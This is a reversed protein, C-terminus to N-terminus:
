AAAPEDNVNRMPTALLAVIVVAVLLGGGGLFLANLPVARLLWGTAAASVPALGMFIFMFLSMARGLMAQPVRRQIWTFVAVQMFGGLAGILLLLGAGQWAATISGMPMFLLGVMADVALLTLGLSRLRWHPKAGALGMGLLTGAGHAALMSGLAAAGLNAQAKALVPLAIQVPGSILLAVASWYLLCSRLQVDRWFSKLGEVVAGLVSAGAPLAPKGGLMRVKSLTWITIAFSFADLAFAAALGRADTLAGAEHGTGLVTIMLGALLPGAFMTLQRLGLMVSNAPQLWERKVVQPLMSTGAPISFATALGIGLSLAYLCPLNLTGVWVMVALTGLLAANVYKTVMMVQKPSHRDVFAGGILIFLARPLGLMALVIGLVRTDATMQLVLWPLAILTFQDGLMSILGGSLMWRFNRDRLLAQRPTPAASPPRTPSTM